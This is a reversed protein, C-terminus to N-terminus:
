TRHKIERAPKETHSSANEVKESLEYKEKVNIICIM